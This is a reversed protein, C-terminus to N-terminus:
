SLEIPVENMLRLKYSQICACADAFCMPVYLYVGFYYLATDASCLVLESVDLTDLLASM